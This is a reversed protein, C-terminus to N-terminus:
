GAFLVILLVLAVVAIGGAIFLPVYRKLAEADTPVPPLKARLKGLPTSPPEEFAPEEFEPPPEPEPLPEPEGRAAPLEAQSPRAPPDSIESSLEEKAELEPAAAAANAGSKPRRPVRAPLEAEPQLGPDTQPPVFPAERIESPDVYLMRTGGIEVEDRDKLTTPGRIAKKNVKVGNRSGLDEVHTGSWDRRIKAHKRSTLDDAFIIDCEDARGVTLERAENVEHKDDKHPGNLVLLYPSTGGALGRMVDKMVARAMASTKEVGDGQSVTVELVRSFTLDFTGVAIIDGNRLLRKEGKPLLQGNVRTGFASGVDEVFYLSGERTIQAHSRSVSPEGLVVQSTKDRGISISEGDLKLEQPPPKQGDASAANATVLLRVPM